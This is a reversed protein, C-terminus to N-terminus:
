ASTGDLRDLLSIDWFFNLFLFEFIARNAVEGGSGRKASFHGRARTGRFEFCRWKKGGGSSCM